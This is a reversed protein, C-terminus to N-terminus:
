MLKIPYNVHLEKLTFSFERSLVCYTQYIKVKHNIKNMELVHIRAKEPADVLVDNIEEDHLLRLINRKASNAWVKFQLRRSIELFVKEKGLSIPNVM